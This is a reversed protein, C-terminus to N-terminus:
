IGCTLIELYPQMVRGVRDMEAYGWIEDLTFRRGRYGDCLAELAIDLGVIRRFKFCDAITRAPSYVRLRVGAITHEEIGAEFTVPSLRVVQVRLDPAPTRAGRPLALWVRAPDQTGIGHYRLASVLCVVGRPVSMAVELLTEHVTLDAAPNVYIGRRIREVVGADELRQIYSAPVGCRTLDRPRILGRAAALSRAKDAKTAPRAISQREDAM